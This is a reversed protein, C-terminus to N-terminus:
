KKIKSFVAGDLSLSAMIGRNNFAFAIISKKFDMTTLDLGGGWDVFSISGDLGVKWKNSSRFSKLADPTLFVIIISKSEAGAQLGISAAVMSYYEIIKDGVILGGEGYSGGVIFGAKYLNPIVLYGSSKMLFDKAGKAKSEFLQVTDKIQLDLIDKREAKAEQTNFTLLLLFALFLHKM